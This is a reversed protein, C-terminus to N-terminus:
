RHATICVKERTRDVQINSKEEWSVTINRISMTSSEQRSLHLRKRMGPLGGAGQSLKLTEATASCSVVSRIFAIYEAQSGVINTYASLVLGFYGITLRSQCFVSKFM